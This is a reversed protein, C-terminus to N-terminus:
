RSATPRPFFQGKPESCRQLQSDTILATEEEGDKEREHDSKSLHTFTILADADADDDDDDDYNM